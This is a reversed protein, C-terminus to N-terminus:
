QGRQGKTIAADLRNAAALLEASVQGGTTPPQGADPPPQEGTPPTQGTKKVLEQIAGSLTDSFGVTSGYSVLVLRMLPYPNQVNTSKLYVPQVYLLGGGYPLSLLNGYVVQASGQGGLLTIRQRVDGDNVMNQQAQGPGPIRGDRPLELLELRPGDQPLVGTLLASLNKRATPTLAAPPQFRATHTGPFQTLLYYPPQKGSGTGSPTSAPDDPVAWFDQGSNFQRPDSVHFKSILDRQVKFLDEPYRFH